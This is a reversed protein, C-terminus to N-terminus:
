YGRAACTGNGSSSGWQCCAGYGTAFCRGSHRSTSDRCDRSHDAAPNPLAAATEDDVGEPVPFSFARRVVARQAMAGYPVRAGGFFVRQGDSLHGVGDTGCVYPLDRPGAYHFGSALRRDIPKLSAAHVQVIGEGDGATPEPFQEYRPPKGLTHLVAAYM